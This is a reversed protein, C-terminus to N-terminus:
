PTNQEKTGVIVSTGKQKHESPKTCSPVPQHEVVGLEHIDLRAAICLQQNKRSVSSHKLIRCEPSVTKLSPM